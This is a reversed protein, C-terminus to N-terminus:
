KSEKNPLEVLDGTVIMNAPLKYLKGHGDQLWGAIFAILVDAIAAESVKLVCPGETTNVIIQPIATIRM